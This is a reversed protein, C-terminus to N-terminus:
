FGEAAPTAKAVSAPAPKPTMTSSTEDSTSPAENSPAKGLAIDRSIIKQLVSIVPAEEGSGWWRLRIVGLGSPRLSTVTMKARALTRLLESAQSPDLIAEGLVLLSSGDRQIRLSLFGLAPESAPTFPQALLWLVKGQIFGKQGLATQISDWDVSAGPAPTPFSLPTRPTGTLGLVEKLEADIVGATGKGSFDLVKIAPTEGVLLDGFDDLKFGDLILKDEV